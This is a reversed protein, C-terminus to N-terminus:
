VLKWTTEITVWGMYSMVAVVIWGIIQLIIPHKYNEMISSNTAAVLIVALAIPLILGNFAGALILLKVPNGVSIFIVTSLIIFLSIVIKENQKVAPV